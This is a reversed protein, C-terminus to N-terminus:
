VISVLRLRLTARLFVAIPNSIPERSYFVRLPVIHNFLSPPGLYYAGVRMPYPYTPPVEEFSDSERQPMFGKVVAQTERRHSANTEM